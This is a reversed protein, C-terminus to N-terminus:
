EGGGMERESSYTKREKKREKEQGRQRDGDRERMRGGVEGYRERM